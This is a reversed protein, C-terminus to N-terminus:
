KAFLKKKPVKSYFVGDIRGAVLMDGSESSMNLIRMGEGEIELKGLDSMVCIYDTDFSIVERVDSLSLTERDKLHINGGVM